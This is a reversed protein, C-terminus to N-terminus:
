SERFGYDAKFGIKVDKNYPYKHKELFFDLPGKYLQNKLKVDLWLFEQVVDKDLYPFRGEIGHAGSVSDEKMIYNKQPSKFFSDWIVDDNVDNSVFKKGNINELMNNPWRGGFRTHGGGSDKGNLGYDAYIEDAGQGSLFIRYGENYAINCIHSLGVSAKDNIVYMDESYKAPPNILSNKNYIESKSYYIMPELKKELKQKSILFQDKLLILKYSEKNNILIRRNIINLDEKGNITFTKYNENLLNAALCICGSDYGSSLCIFKKRENNDLRKRVSNLFAKEWDNYTTKYQNSFDFHHLIETKIKNATIDYIYITNNNAEKITKCDLRDLASKYSSLSINDDDINYFLPKTGFIDRTFLIHNKKLDLLCIAFEGDLKKFFQYGFKEYLDILCEGDSKYDGFEKYNYIEGNFFCIITDKIFPQIIREGTIHLLNHIFTYNDINKVSTVDPGRYQLFENIYKITKDSLTINTFIFSCM